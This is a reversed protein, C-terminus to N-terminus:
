VHNKELSAIESASKTRLSLYKKYDSLEIESGIVGAKWGHIPPWEIGLLKLQAKNIGGRDSFGAMILDNNLVIM